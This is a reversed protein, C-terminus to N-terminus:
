SCDYVVQYTTHEYIYNLRNCLLLSLNQKSQRKLVKVIVEEKRDPLSLVYFLRIGKIKGSRM